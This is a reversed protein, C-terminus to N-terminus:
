ASAAAAAGVSVVGIAVIGGFVGYMINVDSGGAITALQEETLQDGFRDVFADRIEEPTADFGAAVVAAQVAAQDDKLSELEAAFAEDSEVRDMFAEAQEVSM